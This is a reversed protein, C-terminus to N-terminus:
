FKGAPYDAFAERLEAQTNMVFPGYKAVPERLPKGAVLILRGGQASALRVRSGPALVAITGRTLAQAPQGVEASGEYVYAFANHAEPLPVEVV